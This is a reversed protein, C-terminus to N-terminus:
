SRSPASIRPRTASSRAWSRSRTPLRTRRSTGPRWYGRSRLCRRRWVSCDWCRAPLRCATHPAPQRRPQVRRPSLESRRPRTREWGGTQRSIWGEALDYLVNPPGVRRAERGTSPPLFKALLGSRNARGVVAPHKRVAVPADEREGTVGGLEIALLARHVLVLAKNLHGVRLLRGPSVGVCGVLVLLTIVLCPQSSLIPLSLTAHASAIEGIRWITLGIGCLLGLSAAVSTWPLGPRFPEGLLSDIREPSVGGTAPDGRGDFALLAAALPARQGGSAKVAARDASVEALEADRDCLGRLAPVFFLARSLIQGCAFRLPDRARTHHHEHALVADLETDSLLELTGRSVYISPRLYGACFAQPRRGAIVTVAPRGALPGVVSLHGLFDRHARRQRWSARIAISIAALGAAALALLVAAALNVRPYSFHLSLVTLESARGSGHHISGIAAAVAAASTLLGTTGLAVAM